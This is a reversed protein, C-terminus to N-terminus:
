CAPQTNRSLLSRVQAASWAGGRAATIGRENLCAAIARLSCGGASQIETVVPELDTARQDANAARVARAKALDTCTGARGRFGGLRTGRTKAAALAARTRESIIKAM